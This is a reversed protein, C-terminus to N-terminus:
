HRTSELIEGTKLVAERITEQTINHGLDKLGLGIAEIGVKLDSNEIWGLHGIRLIKGKLKDQGGIVTVNYKEEIHNRLKQGDINEPVLVATVAPSPSNSFMKLGLIGCAERTADALRQTREITYDLNPELMKKLALNLAKIHSVSSSFFTQGKKNAEMEAKVDFYFRPCKASENFKWAKKSLSIFGLGTPIMFAKQSGSVVVDIGYEDMPLEMAGLATIADVMLLVDDRKSTIAAIEKIPHKTATSTESAQCLIAKARTHRMLAEEVQEITVAEGWQVEVIHAKIGHAEAMKAWREGFKGSNIAIVEDGPSLTNVLASEMAGSGTSAHIMVPEETLFVQNLQTLASVLLGNFEPTRHHIMPESLAKQVEPPMPVPGPALLRYKRFKGFLKFQM